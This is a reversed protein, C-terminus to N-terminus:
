KIGAKTLEAKMKTRMKAIIVNQVKVWNNEMSGRIFRMKKPNIKKQYPTGKYLTWGYEQSAPYYAVQEGEANFKQFIHNKKSDFVVKYVKKGRQKSKEGKLIIGKRLEGTKKPAAKKAATKVIGMASKVSPTIHKNTVKGLDLFAKKVENLGYINVEIM